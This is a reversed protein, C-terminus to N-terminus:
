ACAIPGAKFSNRASCPSASATPPPPSLPLSRLFATSLSVFDASTIFADYQKLVQKQIIPNENKSLCKVEHVVVGRVDEPGRQREKCVVLVAILHPM